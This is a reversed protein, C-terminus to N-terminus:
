PQPRFERVVRRLDELQFPHTRRLRGLREDPNVDAPLNLSSRIHELPVSTAEAVERLTMSGRVLEDDIHAGAGREQAPATATERPVYQKGSFLPAAAMAILALLAFGGAALRRGSSGSARGRVAGYIWRWHLFIHLVMAALLGVSVWFHIDGWEHRSLTWVTAVPRGGGEGHPETGFRGSGPPLMYKLVIGTSVLALFFAFAVVDIILNARAKKM